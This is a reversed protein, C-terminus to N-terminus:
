SAKRTKSPVIGAKKAAETYAHRAATTARGWEADTIYIGGDSHAKTINLSVRILVSVATLLPKNAMYLSIAQQILKMM